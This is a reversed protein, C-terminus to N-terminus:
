VVFAKGREGEREKLGCLSVIDFVMSLSPSLSPSISLYLSLSFILAQRIVM